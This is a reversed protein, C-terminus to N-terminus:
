AGAAIDAKAKAIIGDLSEDTGLCKDMFSHFEEASLDRGEASAKKGLAAYEDWLAAVDMGAQILSPGNTLLFTTIALATNM